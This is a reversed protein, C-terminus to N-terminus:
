RLPTIGWYTGRLRYEREHFPTMAYHEEWEDLEDPLPLTRELREFELSADFPVLREAEWQSQDPPETPAVKDCCFNLVEQEHAQKCRLSCYPFHPADKRVAVDDWKCAVYPGTVVPRM